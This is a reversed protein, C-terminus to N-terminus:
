EEDGESDNDNIIYLYGSDNLEPDRAPVMVAGNDLVLVIGPHSGQYWGMNQYEESSMEHVAVITRGVLPRRFEDHVYRTYQKV